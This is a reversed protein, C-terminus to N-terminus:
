AFAGKCIQKETSIYASGLQKNAKIIYKIGYFLLYSKDYYNCASVSYM